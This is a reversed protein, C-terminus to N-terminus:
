HAAPEAVAGSASDALRSGMGTIHNRRIVSWIFSILYAAIIAVGFWNYPSAQSPLVSEYLPYGFAIVGLVPVVLHKFWSFEDRHQQWFYPITAINTVIFVVMFLDTALTATYDFSNGASALGGLILTAIMALVIPVTIAVWPTRWGPIVRTFSRPFLGDRASNFLVRSGANGTGFLVGMASTFAGFYLLYQLPSAAAITGSVFPFEAHAMRSADHHLGVGMAWSMFLYIFFSVLTATWIAKPLSKRPNRAEEALPSSGSAGLFLFIALVFGLGFGSAGDKIHSPDFGQGNIYSHSTVLMAIACIFLLTAEIAFLSVATLVSIRVGRLLLCLVIAELVISAVWWPLDFGFSRQVVTNVWVGIQFFVAMYFIFMALLYGGAITGGTLKGFARACYTAYFGASPAVRSFEATTNVHCAFGICAILIVFPTGVGAAGVIAAFVFISAIAPAIEAINNAVMETVGLAGVALTGHEGPAHTRRRHHKSRYASHGSHILGSM